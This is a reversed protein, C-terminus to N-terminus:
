PHPAYIIEGADDFTYRPNATERGHHELNHCDQCLAELNTYSLTITPDNITNPTLYTKHHVIQAIQSCRECIGQQTKIYSERCQRWSKSKYFDEAWEKVINGRDSKTEITKERRRKRKTLTKKFLL